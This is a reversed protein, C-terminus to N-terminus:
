HIGFGHYYYFGNSYGGYAFAGTYRCGANSSGTAATLSTAVTGAYSKVYIGVTYLSCAETTEPTGAAVSPLLSALTVITAIFAKSKM